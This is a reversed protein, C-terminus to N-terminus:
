PILHVAREIAGSKLLVAFLLVLCLVVGVVTLLPLMRQLKSEGGGERSTSVLNKIFHPELGVRVEVASMDVSTPNNIKIPVPDGRRYIVCPVISQFFSPLMRPFVTLGIRDPVIDYAGERDLVYEENFVPKKLKGIVYGNDEIFLCYLKGKVVMRFMPPLLLVFFTVIGLMLLTANM